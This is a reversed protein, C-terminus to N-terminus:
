IPKIIHTYEQKSSVWFSNLASESVESHRTGVRLLGTLGPWGSQRVSPIWIIFQLGVHTIRRVLDRFCQFPSANRGIDELACTVHANYSHLTRGMRVSRTGVLGIPRLGGGFEGDVSLRYVPFYSESAYVM